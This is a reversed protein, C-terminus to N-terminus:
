DRTGVAQRNLLHRQMRQNFLQEVTVEIGLLVRRRQRRMLSPLHPSTLVLVTLRAPHLLVHTTLYVPHPKQKPQHISKGVQDLLHARLRQLKNHQPLERHLVVIQPLM